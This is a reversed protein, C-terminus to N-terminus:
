ESIVRRILQRTYEQFDFQHIPHRSLYIITGAQGMTLDKTSGVVRPAGLLYQVLVHRNRNDKSLTKGLAQRLYINLARVQRRTAKRHQYVNEDLTLSATKAVASYNIM